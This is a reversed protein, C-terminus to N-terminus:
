EDDTEKTPTPLPMWHSAYEIVASGEALWWGNGWRAPYPHRPKGPCRNHTGWVWVVTGDRPASDILMWEPGAQAILALQEVVRGINKQGAPPLLPICTAVVEALELLSPLDVHSTPHHTM